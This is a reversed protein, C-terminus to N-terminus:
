DDESEGWLSDAKKKLALLAALEALAENKRELDKELQRNRKKLAQLETKDRTAKDDMLERLEQEWLPLHESHLGKERLWEGRRDNGVMKSELLLALKESAPKQRPGANETGAPLKGEQVLKMWGNVTQESIGFELAVDRVPLSQPPLVKRLVAQRIRSSYRLVTVEV